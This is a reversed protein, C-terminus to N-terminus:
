ALANFRRLEQVRELARVLAKRATKLRVLDARPRAEEIMRSLVRDSAQLEDAVDRGIVEVMEKRLTDPVAGVNADQTSM